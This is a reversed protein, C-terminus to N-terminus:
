RVALVWFERRRRSPILLIDFILGKLRLRMSRNAYFAKLLSSRRQSGLLVKGIRAISHAVACTILLIEICLCGCRSYKLSHSLSASTRLPHLDHAFSLPVYVVSLCSSEPPCVRTSMSCVGEEDQRGPFDTNDVFGCIECDYTAAM